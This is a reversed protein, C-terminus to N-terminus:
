STACATKRQLLLRELGADSPLRTLEILVYSAMAINGFLMILAFWLARNLFCGEKYCVWVFFTLFGAYADALTAAAWPERLVKTLGIGVNEHLSAWGTVLLMGALIAAFLLRLSRIM